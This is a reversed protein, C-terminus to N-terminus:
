EVILKQCFHNGNTTSIRIFYIGAPINQLNIQTATQSQLNQSFILRDALDFIAVASLATEATLTITGSSPNPFVTFSAPQTEKMGGTNPETSGLKIGNGFSTVWIQQGNFPDFFVRMPHQFPYEDLQMFTPTSTTANNSYWLGENETTIYIENGNQPNISASEVRYLDVFLNWTVGRDTTKYLGGKDNAPGGWGSFVSVYWTNQTADTPDITIDKTWYYMDDNMSVDNWSAGQDDSSFVGSSTTFVGGNRRGCWTSVVTGDDLVFVTYPHGETRPPATTNTWVSAPGNNLDATRFIGGATNHVVSAYMVDSDNPDLALWIVPHAFNHLLQWTVGNNDSYLVAGTGGDIQADTLYTSQYLDHVSSVAAYLRGSTPHEIVHYITNYNVGTYDFAWSNGGDTSRTGTIDTYSAFITNADKWHMNWSSTNELGNSSYSLDEPTATGAANQDTVAVYAQRWSTGGNTTIHAFGFDTFIVTNVDNPAVDLGFVIEGYYWDEDGGYGSYGTAINQNNTTLFIENWSNGGDITKYVVPYSTTNDTGGIYFTNIDYRSSSIVFFDHNADFGTEANTWNTVGYDMKLTTAYINIDLANVGPYLDAQDATTAMLRTANGDSAGTFSIFGHGAPIGISGDLNFSAGGDASVLLGINTGVFISDGQWFVGAILFDSGLDFASQFSSGGNTSIFLETYSSILLRNTSNPDASIFWADAGTPDAALATWTDGGDNSKVPFREDTLFDLNVTYLIDPDSTFEVTHQGGTSLLQKYHVQNWTTGADTTHFVETMDCQLYIAAANLPSISPAFLAGGGGIGKYQWAAPQAIAFCTACTYAFALVYNKM